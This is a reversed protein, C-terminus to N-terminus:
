ILLLIMKMSKKIKPGLLPFLFDKMKQLMIQCLSIFLSTNMKVFTHMWIPLLYWTVKKKLNMPLSRIITSLVLKSWENWAKCTHYKIFFFLSISCCLRNTIALTVIMSDTNRVNFWVQCRNFFFYLM